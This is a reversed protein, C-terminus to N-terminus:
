RKVLIRVVDTTQDGTASNERRVKVIYMGPKVKAGSDNYGKWVFSGPSSYSRSFVRDGNIDLIEVSFLDDSVAPQYTLRLTQASPNFPVPYAILKAEASFLSALCLVLASTLIATKKM